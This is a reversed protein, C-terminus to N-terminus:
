GMTLLLQANVKGDPESKGREQFSALLQADQQLLQWLQQVEDLTVELLDGEMLLNELNSRRVPGLGAYKSTLRELESEYHNLVSGSVYFSYFHRIICSIVGLCPQMLPPPANVGWM